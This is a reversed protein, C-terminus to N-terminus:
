IRKSLKQLLPTYVVVRDYKQHVFTRGADGVTKRMAADTLLTRLATKWGAADSPTFGHKPELVVNKNEGVNSAVVPVGAALYEILKLASKGANFPTPELPMVGISFKSIEAPIAKPETWGVLELKEGLFSFWERIEKEFHTVGILRLTFPPLDAHITQLIDAFFRLNEKHGSIDGTWGIVPVAEESRPLGFRSMDITTPVFVANKHKQQMYTLSAESGCWIEDSLSIIEDTGEPSHTWVADDFDSVIYSIKSRYKRVLSLFEPRRLTRQLLVVTKTDISSLIRQFRFYEIVRSFSWCWWPLAEVVKMDTEWGAAKAVDMLGLVRQRTSAANGRSKAFCLLRVM